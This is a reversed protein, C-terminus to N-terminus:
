ACYDGINLIQASKIKIEEHSSIIVIGGSNAKSVLLHQLMVKNQQDLCSDVEDLLWLNSQCALLKSLAVKKINGTSLEYCKKHLIDHLNFYHIAAALTETSGYIDSWFKLNQFVSMELKLGVQHGIYTCYPKIADYVSLKSQTLFVEGSTPKQIAAIIRLLSTKGSGNAGQVHIIASPLFSVSINDFLRNGDIALSLQCLSLMM